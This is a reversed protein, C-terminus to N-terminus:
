KKSYPCLVRRKSQGAWQSLGMTMPHWRHCILRVRASCGNMAPFQGAMFCMSPASAWSRMYLKQWSRQTGESDRTGELPRQKYGASNWVIDLGNKFNLRDFFEKMQGFNYATKPVSTEQWSSAREEILTGSKANSAMSWRIYLSVCTVGKGEWWIGFPVFIIRIKEMLATSNELRCWLHNSWGPLTDVVWALSWLLSGGSRYLSPRILPNASDEELLWAPLGGFEWEACIFRSIPRVIMFLGLSQATQIFRELDLRGSFDFQGKTPEHADLFM